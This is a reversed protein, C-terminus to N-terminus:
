NAVTRHKSLIREAYQVKENYQKVYICEPAMINLKEMASKIFPLNEQLNLLSLLFVAHVPENTKDILRKMSGIFQMNLKQMENEYEKKSLFSTNLEEFLHASEALMAMYFKQLEQFEESRKNGSVETIIYDNGTADARIHLRSNDLFFLVYQDEGSFAPKLGYIGAEGVKGTFCFNGASDMKTVSIVETTEYTFFRLEVPQSGLGKFNGTLVYGTNQRHCSLFLVVLFSLLINRKIRNM